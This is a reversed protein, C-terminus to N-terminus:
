DELCIGACHVRAQQDRHLEIDDKFQDIAFPGASDGAADGDRHNERHFSFRGEFQIDGVRM